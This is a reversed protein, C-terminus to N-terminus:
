LFGLSSQEDGGTDAAPNETWGDRDGYATWCEACYIGAPSVLVADDAADLGDRGCRNCRMSEV